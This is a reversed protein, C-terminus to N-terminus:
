AYAREAGREALTLCLSAHDCGVDIVSRCGRCLEAVLALRPTLEM